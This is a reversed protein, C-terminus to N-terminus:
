KKLWYTVVRDKNNLFDVDQHSKNIYFVDVEIDLFLCRFNAVESSVITKSINKDDLFYNIRYTTNGKDVIKKFNM